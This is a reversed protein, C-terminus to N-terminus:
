DRIEVVTHRDFYRSRAEAMRQATELASDRRPFWFPPKGAELIHWGGTFPALTLTSPAPLADM